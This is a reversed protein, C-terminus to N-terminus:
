KNQPLKALASAAPITEWSTLSHEVRTGHAKLWASMAPGAAKGYVRHSYVVGFGVGDKLLVRAFAAELFAPKGLVAAILHEAPREATRPKSDTRLIKGHAQYGALIRNAVNALQEGSTVSGYVNITVMDRWTSLDPDSAPTFENQSGKSWRHLYDIGGFRITMASSNRAVGAPQARVAAPSCALAFAIAIAILCCRVHTPIKM